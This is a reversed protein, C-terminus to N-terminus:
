KGKSINFKNFDKIDQTIIEIKVNNKRLKKAYDFYERYKKNKALKKLKFIILFRKIEEKQKETLTINELKTLLKDIRKKM